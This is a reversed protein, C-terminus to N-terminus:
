GGYRSLAFAPFRTSSFDQQSSITMAQATILTARRDLHAVV